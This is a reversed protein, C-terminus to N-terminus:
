IKNYEELIAAMEPDKEALAAYIETNQIQKRRAELQLKLLEKREEKAVAERHTELDIKAIIWQTANTAYRAV